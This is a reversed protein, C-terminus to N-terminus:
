KKSINLSFIPFSYAIFHVFLLRTIFMNLSFAIYCFTEGFLACFDLLVCFPFFVLTYSYYFENGLMEGDQMLLEHTDASDSNLSPRTLYFPKSIKKKLLLILSYLEGVPVTLVFRMRFNVWLFLDPKVSPAARLGLLKM